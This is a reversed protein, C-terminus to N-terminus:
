LIAGQESLARRLEQVDLQRPTIKEKVALAAATGAAQGMAMCPGMVRTSSHAEYTTSICRGAVLLNEIKKPLLCRFPIGYVGENKVCRITVGAGEPNHIDLEYGSKAIQDEFQRAEVIDDANLIYDGEIRRTERIGIIPGTGVLIASKFGPVYKKLFDIVQPIQKRSELEARTLDKVETGDVRNVRTGNVSVISNQLTFFWLQDVSPPLEGLEHAKKALQRVESRPIKDSEKTDVNALVFMLSPPQTLGDKDRGKKFSAGCRVAIDGDGSCDVVIDSLIAQRGSKSEVIIGKVKGNEVIGDVALTYLLLEAGSDELIEVAVHKFAEPDVPTTSGRMSPSVISGPQHGQTGGIKILRDVIEQAIGKIVQNGDASKFAHLPLGTAAMGGLFGFHEVLLTKAGNKAAAVAACIGAPGGGVVLVEVKEIVSTTRKKEHITKLM